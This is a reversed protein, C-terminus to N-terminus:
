YGYWFIQVYSECPVSEEDLNSLAVFYCACTDIIMQQFCLKHCDIQRYAKNTDVIFHYFKSSYSNLDVCESYPAAYNHLLTKKIAVNTEKGTEAYIVESTSPEFSQNHIFIKLGKSSSSAYKNLNILPGLYIRLGGGPGSQTVNKLPVSNGLSNKGTNFQYCNGYDYSYHWIFDEKFYCFEGNFMCFLLTTNLNLGMSIREDETKNLARIKALNTANITKIYATLFTDNTIDQGYIGMIQEHLLKEAKKTTFPNADCITVAPFLAPVEKIIKITSVVGYQYYALLCNIVVICTCATFVLFITTWFVQLLKSSTRYIKPYCHYTSELSWKVCFDRIQGGKTQKLPKVDIIKTEETNGLPQVHM